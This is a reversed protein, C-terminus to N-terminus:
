RPARSPHERARKDIRRRWGEFGGVTPLAAEIASAGYMYLWGGNRRARKGHPFRAAEHWHLAFLGMLTRKTLFDPRRAAALLLSADARCAARWAKGVHAVAVFDFPNLDAHVLIARVLDPNGLVDDAAGSDPRM